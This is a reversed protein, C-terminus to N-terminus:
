HGRPGTSDPPDIWGLHGDARRYVVNIRGSGAHRFVIVPAGTLDLEAVADSVSLDAIDTTSEAIVAPAADDPEIDPEPLDPDPAAIVYSAAATAAARRAKNGQHDKLRRAYRRLRKEIREAAQDASTYADAAMAEAQLTTGSELHLACETRFGYGEKEVTVHGHYGGTGNRGVAEAIRTQIRGRLADGLDLNKGSIRM